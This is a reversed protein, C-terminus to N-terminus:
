PCLQRMSSFFFRHNQVTFSSRKGIDNKDLARGRLLIIMTYFHSRGGLERKEGHSQFYRYKIKKLLSDNENKNRKNTVWSM